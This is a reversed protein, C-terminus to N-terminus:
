LDERDPVGARRREAAGPAGRSRVRRRGGNARRCHPLPSRGRADCGPHAARLLRNPSGVDDKGEPTITAAKIGFRAESMAEAASSVVENNTRRRNDLS